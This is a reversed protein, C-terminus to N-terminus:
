LAVHHMPLKVKGLMSHELIASRSHSLICSFRLKGFKLLQM